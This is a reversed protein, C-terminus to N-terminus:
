SSSLLMIKSSTIMHDEALAKLYWNHPYRCLVSLPSINELFHQHSYINLFSQIVVRDFYHILGTVYLYTEYETDMFGISKDKRLVHGLQSPSCFVDREASPYTDQIHYLVIQNQPKLLISSQPICLVGENGNSGPGSQSPTIAGSITRDIPWISSNSM